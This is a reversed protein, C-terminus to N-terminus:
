RLTKEQDKETKAEYLVVKLHYMKHSICKDSCRVGGYGPKCTSNGTYRDCGSVVGEGCAKNCSEMFMGEICSYCTGTENDCGDVCYPSCKM